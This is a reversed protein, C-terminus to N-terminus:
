DRLYLEYIIWSVGIPQYQVSTEGIRMCYQQHEHKIMHQTKTLDPRYGSNWSSLIYNRIFGVKILVNWMDGAIEDCNM